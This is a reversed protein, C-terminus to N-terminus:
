PQVWGTGTWRLEGRPTTYVTTAKRQKPDRPAPPAAGAPATTGTGGPLLTRQQARWDDIDKKLEARRATAANFQTQRDAKPLDKPFEEISAPLNELQKEADNIAARLARETQPPTLGPQGVPFVRRTQPGTPLSRAFVNTSGPLLHETVNTSLPTPEPRIVSAREGRLGSRLVNFGGINTVAPPPVPRSERMTGAVASPTKKFIMPLWKTADRGAELDRHYARMAEFQTAAEQAALQTNYPTENIQRRINELPDFVPPASVASFSRVAGTEPNSSTLTGRGYGPPPGVTVGRAWAPFVPRRANAELLAEIEEPTLEGNEDPM